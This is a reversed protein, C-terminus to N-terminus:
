RYQHLLEGIVGVLEFQTPFGSLDACQEAVDTPKGAYGLLERRLGQGIQQVTEERGQGVDNEVLLARDILVHAVADHRKPVRWNINGIM